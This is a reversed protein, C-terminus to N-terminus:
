PSVMQCESRAGENGGMNAKDRHCTDPHLPPHGANRANNDASLAASEHLAHSGRAAANDDARRMDRAPARARGDALLCQFQPQDFFGARRDCARLRANRRENEMRRSVARLLLLAFVASRCVCVGLPEEFAANRVRAYM